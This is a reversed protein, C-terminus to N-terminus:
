EEPKCRDMAEVVKGDEMLNPMNSYLEEARKQLKESRKMFETAMEENEMNAQQEALTAHIEAQHETCYADIKGAAEDSTKSGAILAFFSEQMVMLRDVVSGNAPAKVQFGAGSGGCAILTLSSLALVLRKM